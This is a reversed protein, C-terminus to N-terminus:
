GPGSAVHAGYAAATRVLFMTHRADDVQADYYQLAGVM